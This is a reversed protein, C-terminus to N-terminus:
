NIAGSAGSELAGGCLPASSGIGCKAKRSSSPSHGRFSLSGKYMCDDFQDMYNKTEDALVKTRGRETWSYTKPSGGNVIHETMGEFQFPRANYAFIMAHFMKKPDGGNRLYVKWKDESVFRDRIYAGMAFIGYSVHGTRINDGSISSLSFPTGPLKSQYSNWQRGYKAKIVRTMYVGTEPMFQTIGKAGATSNTSHKYSSEILTMCAMHQPDLGFEDATIRIRQIMGAFSLGDGSPCLPLGSVEHLCIFKTAEVWSRDRSTTSACSVTAGDIRVTCEGGTEVPSPDRDEVITSNAALQELESLGDEALDNDSGESFGGLGRERNLLTQKEVLDCAKTLTRPKEVVGVRGECIDDISSVFEDYKERAGEKNFVADFSSDRDTVISKYCLETTANSYCFPRQSGKKVGFVFPNCIEMGEPCTFGAYSRAGCQSPGIPVPVGGGVCRFKEDAAYAKPILFSFNFYSVKTEGEFYVLAQAIKNLYAARDKQHLKIIESFELMHKPKAHASFGLFLSLFLVTIKFM